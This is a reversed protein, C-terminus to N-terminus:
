TDSVPIFNSPKTQSLNYKFTIRYIQSNSSHFHLLDTHPYIYEHFRMAVKWSECMSFPDTGQTHLVRHVYSAMRSRGSAWIHQLLSM